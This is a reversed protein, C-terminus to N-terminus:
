IMGDIQNDDLIDKKSWLQKNLGVFTTNSNYAGEHKEFQGQSVQEKKQSENLSVTSSKLKIGVAPM